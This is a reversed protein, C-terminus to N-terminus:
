SIVKSLPARECVLSLSLSLSPIYLWRIPSVSRPLFIKLVRDQERCGGDLGVLDRWLRERSAVAVLRARAIPRGSEHTANVDVRLVIHPEVSTSLYLEGDGGVWPSYGRQNTGLADGRSVVPLTAGQAVAGRVHQQKKASPVFFFSLRGGGRTAFADNQLTTMWRVLPWSM